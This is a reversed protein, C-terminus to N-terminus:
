RSRKKLLKQRERIQYQLKKLNEGNKDFGLQWYVSLLQQAKASEGPLARSLALQVASYLAKECWSQEPVYGERRLASAMYLVNEFDEFAKEYDGSSMRCLGAKYCAQIRMDPLKGDDAVFRYLEEASKLLESKNSQHYLTYRCDALRGAVADGFIGDPKLERARAFNKEALEYESFRDCRINGAIFSAEAAEASEPHANLLKDLEAAADRYRQLKVLIRARAFLVDSRQRIKAREGDATMRDILTVAEVARGSSSLHEALTLLGAVFATTFNKEAALKDLQKLADSTMGARCFYDLAIFRAAGANGHEPFTDAFSVFEAAAAPYNGDSGALRAAYFKAQPVFKSAPYKKIFELYKRRSEEGSAGSIRSIEASFFAGSEAYTKRSSGALFDAFVSYEATLQNRLSKSQLLLYVATERERSSDTDAALELLLTDSKEFQNRRLLFEAFSLKSKRRSVADPSLEIQMNYLTEASDFLKGKEAAAAGEFAAARREVLLNERDSAVKSFVAVAESYMNKETLLRGSQTLLVARDSAEPFLEAYRQAAEAAKRVDFNACVTFLRKVVERKSEDNSAFAFAQEFLQAAFQYDNQKVALDAASLILEFIFGDQRIDDDNIKWNAKFYDLKGEKVACLMRLYYFNRDSTRDSSDILKAAEAVKGMRLLALVSGYESKRSILPVRSAKLRNFIDLAEQYKKQKIKLYGMWFEASEAHIDKRDILFRFEKEAGAFDDEALMIEGPLTGASGAPVKERFTQLLKKAGATNGNQLELTGLRFLCESWLTIDSKSEDMAKLYHKRANKYNGFSAAVDGLRLEDVGAPDEWSFPFAGSCVPLFLVALLLAAASNRIYTLLSKM